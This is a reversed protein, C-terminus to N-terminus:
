LSSCISTSNIRGLDVQDRDDGLCVGQGVLDNAELLACTARGAERRGGRGNGVLDADELRRLVFIAICLRDRFDREARTVWARRANPEPARMVSTSLPHEDARVYLVRPLM